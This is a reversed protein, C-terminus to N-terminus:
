EKILNERTQHYFGRFSTYPDIASDKLAKIDDIYFSTENVMQEATVGAGTVFDPVLWFLPNLFADVALGFADRASSPGLLPLVVYPGSGLGWVGLTQGFDEDVPKLDFDAEAVEFMGGLGLTTNILTRTLVRGSKEFEGQLLSSVLRQPFTINRYVNRIIVRLDEPLIDRYSQSVPRMLYEYFHDNFVYVPRNYWRELPDSIPPVGNGEEAFPDEEFGNGGEAFPDDDFSDDAFPDPEEGEPEVLNESESNEAPAESGESTPDSFSFNRAGETQALLNGDSFRPWDQSEPAPSVSPLLAPLILRHSQFFEGSSNIEPEAAWSVWPYFVLVLVGVFVRRLAQGLFLPEKWRFTPKSVM